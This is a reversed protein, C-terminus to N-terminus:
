SAWWGRSRTRRPVGLVVHVHDEEVAVEDMWCGVAEAIARCTEKGSTRVAADGLVRRRKPCWILHYKGDDKAPSRSRWGMRPHQWPEPRCGLLLIM